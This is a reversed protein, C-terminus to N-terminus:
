RTVTDGTKIARDTEGPFPKCKGLIGLQEAQERRFTEGVQHGGANSTLQVVAPLQPTEAAPATDKAETKKSM